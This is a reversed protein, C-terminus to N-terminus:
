KIIRRRLLLLAALLLAFGLCLPFAVFIDGTAPVEAIANIALASKVLTLPIYGDTYQIRLTHVGDRLTRMFAEDIIISEGSQKVYQREVMVGDISVSVFKSSPANTNLTLTGGTYNITSEGSTLSYLNSSDAGKGSSSSGDEAREHLITTYDPEKNFPAGYGGGNLAVQNGPTPESDTWVSIQVKGDIVESKIKLWTDTPTDTGGSIEDSVLAGKYFSFSMSPTSQDATDFPFGDSHLVVSGDYAPTDNGSYIELYSFRQMDLRFMDLDGSMSKSGFYLSVDTANKGSAAKLFRLSGDALFRALALNGGSIEAYQGNGAADTKTMTAQIGGDSSVLDYGKFPNASVNPKLSLQVDLPTKVDAEVAKYQLEGAEMHPFYNTTNTVDVPVPSYDSAPEKFIGYDNVHNAASFDNGTFSTIPKIAYHTYSNNIDDITLLANTASITKEKPNHINLTENIVSLNRHRITTLPWSGGDTMNYTIYENGNADEDVPKYNTGDKQLKIWYFTGAADPVCNEDYIKFIIYDKGGETYEYYDVCLIAHGGFSGAIGMLFARNADIDAKARDVFTKLASRDFKMHGSSYVTSASFTNDGGYIVSSLSQAVQYYNVMNQVAINNCPVPLDIYNEAAPYFSNISLKYADDITNDRTMRNLLMTSAMGFCSGGWDSEVSSLVNCQETYSGISLLKNIYENQLYYTSYYHIPSNYFSNSDVGVTFQECDTSAIFENPTVVQGGHAQQWSQALAPAPLALFVLCLALLLSLRKKANSM